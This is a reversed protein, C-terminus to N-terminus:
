TGLAELAGDGLDSQDLADLKRVIKEPNLQIAVSLANGFYSTASLQIDEMRAFPHCANATICDVEYYQVPLAYGRVKDYRIIV